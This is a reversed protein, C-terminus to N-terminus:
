AGKIKIPKVQLSQNPKMNKKVSQSELLAQEQFLARVKRGREAIRKFLADVAEHDTHLTSIPQAKGSMM